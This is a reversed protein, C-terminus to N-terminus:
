PPEVVKTVFSRVFRTIRSENKPDGTFAAAALRRQQFTANGVQVMSRRREEADANAKQFDDIYIDLTPIEKVPPINAPVVADVLRSDPSNILVIAALPFPFQASQSFKWVDAAGRGVGGLVFHTVERGALHRIAANLLEDATAAPHPNSSAPGPAPLADPEGSTPDAASIAQRPPTIHFQEPVPVTLLNWGHKPLHHVLNDLLDPWASHQRTDHAILMTGRPAATLQPYWFALMHHSDDLWIAYAGLSDALLQQRKQVLTQFNFVIRDSAASTSPPSAAPDDAGTDAPQARTSACAFLCLLLPLRSAQAFRVM